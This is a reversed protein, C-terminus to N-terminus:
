SNTEDADPKVSESKKTTKKVPAEPEEVPVDSEKVGSLILTADRVDAKSADSVELLGAIQRNRLFSPLCVNCYQVRSVTTPAYIYQATNECNSCKM